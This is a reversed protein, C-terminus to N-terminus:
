KDHYERPDAELVRALTRANRAEWLQAPYLETKGDAPWFGSALEGSIATFCESVGAM